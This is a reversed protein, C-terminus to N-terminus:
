VGIEFQNQVLILNLEILADYLRKTEFLRYSQVGFRRIADRDLPKNWDETWMPLIQNLLVMRRYVQPETCKSLEDQTPLLAKVGLLVGAHAQFSVLRVFVDNAVVCLPHMGVVQSSEEVEFQFVGDEIVFGKKVKPVLEVLLSHVIRTSSTHQLSVRKKSDRKRNPAFLQTSANEHAMLLQYEKEAYEVGESACSVKVLYRLMYYFSPQISSIPLIPDQFIAHKPEQYLRQYLQLLTAIDRLFCLMELLGVGDRSIEQLLEYSAVFLYGLSEQTNEPLTPVPLEFPSSLLPLLVRFRAENLFQSRARRLAFHSSNEDIPDTLHHPIIDRPSLFSVLMDTGGFVEIALPLRAKEDDSWLFLANHHIQAKFTEFQSILVQSTHLKSSIETKLKLLQEFDDAVNSYFSAYTCSRELQSILAEMESEWSKLLRAQPFAENRALIRKHSKLEELTKHLNAVMAEVEETHQSKAPHSLDVGFQRMQWDFDAVKDMRTELGLDPIAPIYTTGYVIVNDVGIQHYPNDLHLHCTDLRLVVIDCYLLPDDFTLSLTECKQANHAFHGPVPQSCVHRTVADEQADSKGANGVDLHVCQSVYLPHHVIEISHIHSLDSLRLWLLQPFRGHPESVWGRTSAVETTKITSLSSAPHDLAQSTVGIVHFPLSQIM